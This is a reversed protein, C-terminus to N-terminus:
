LSFVFLSLGPLCFLFNKKGRSEEKHSFSVAYRQEVDKLTGNVLSIFATVCLGCPNRSTRLSVMLNLYNKRGKRFGQAGQTVAKPKWKKLGVEVVDCHM